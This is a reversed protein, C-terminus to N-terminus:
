AALAEPDAALEAIAARASALSEEPSVALRDAAILTVDTIGVFGLIHKLYGSAFDIDSGLETGGSAIM